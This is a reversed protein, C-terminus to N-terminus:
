KLTGAAIAGITVHTFAAGAALSPDHSTVALGVYVPGESAFVDSGITSWSSGDPSTFATVVTGARTLRM